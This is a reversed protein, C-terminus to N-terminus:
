KIECECFKLNNDIIVNCGEYMLINCNNAHEKLTYGFEFDIEDIISKCTDESIRISVDKRGRVSKCYNIADRLKDLDVGNAISFKDSM